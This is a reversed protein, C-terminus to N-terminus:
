ARAAPGSDDPGSDNSFEKVLQDLEALPTRFGKKNENKIAAYCSLLTIASTIIVGIPSAAPGGPVYIGFVLWTAFFTSLPILMWEYRVKFRLFEQLLNRQSVLYQLISANENGAPKHVALQKFKRMLTYTFPVFILVGALALTVIYPDRFYKVIVHAYLAYVILQLTFSAWFYKMTERLHMQARRRVLRGMNETNYPTAQAHKGEWNLKMEDLTDM